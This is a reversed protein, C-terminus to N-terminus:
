PAGNEMQLFKYHLQSHAYTPNRLLTALLDQMNLSQKIAKKATDAPGGPRGRGVGGGDAGAATGAHTAPGTGGVQAADQAEVGDSSAAPLPGLVNPEKNARLATMKGGLLRRKQGFKRQPLLMKLNENVRTQAEATGLRSKAADVNEKRKAKEEEDLEEGRRRSAHNAITQQDEQLQQAHRARAQAEKEAEAIIAVDRAWNRSLDRVMGPVDKAQGTRLEHMRIMDQLVRRLYLEVALSCAKVAGSHVVVGHRAAVHKLRARLPADNLVADEELVAKHGHQQGMKLMAGLLAAEETDMDIAVGIPQDETRAKKRAAGQKRAPPRKKGAAGGVATGPGEDAPSPVMSGGAGASKSAAPRKRGKGQKEARIRERELRKREKEEDRKRKDDARKQAKRAKEEEQQQKKQRAAEEKERRAQAKRAQDEANRQRKEEMERRKQEEKAIRDEEAKKRQADTVQPLLHHAPRVMGPQAYQQYQYPPRQGMNAYAQYQPQGPMGVGPQLPMAPGPRVAAHPHPAQAVAAGLPVATGVVPRPAGPAVPSVPVLPQAQQPIAVQQTAGPAAVGPAQTAAHGHPAQGQVAAAPRQQAANENYSWIKHYLKKNVRVEDYVAKVIRQFWEKQNLDPNAEKIKRGKAYWLDHVESDEKALAFLKTKFVRSLDPNTTSSQQSTTAQAPRGAAPPRGVATRPQAGPQAQAMPERSAQAVQETGPRPRPQTGPPVSGASAPHQVQSGARASMAHQAHQNTAQYQSIIHHATVIHNQQAPQGPQSQMMQQGGMQGAPAVHQAPQGPQPQIMPAASMQAAPPVNHTPQGQPQQMMPASSMQASSMQATSMQATSMQAAGMHAAGMQTTTMQVAGMQTPTMQVAGMQASGMQASGMQASGMQAPGMQASAMQTSGMQGSPAVHQMHQMPQTRAGQLPPQSIPMGHMTPRPQALVPQAATNADRLRDGDRGNPRIPASM